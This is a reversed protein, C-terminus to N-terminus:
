LHKILGFGQIGHLNTAFKSFTVNDWFYNNPCFETNLDDWCSIGIFNTDLIHNYIELELKGGGNIDVFIFDFSSMDLKRFDGDYVNIHVNSKTIINGCDVIDYSYLFSKSPLFYNLAYLSNGHRRGLELIKKPEFLKVYHALWIQYGDTNIFDKGEFGSIPFRFSNNYSNKIVTYIEEISLNNIKM